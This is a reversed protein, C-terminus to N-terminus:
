AFGLGALLQIFRADSRLPDILPDNRIYVLGADGQARARLLAAIAEERKGWQALV